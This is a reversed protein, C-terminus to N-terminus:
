IFFIKAAEMTEKNAIRDYRSIKSDAAALEKFRDDFIDTGQLSVAFASEGDGNRNRVGSSTLDPTTNADEPKLNAIDGLDGKPHRRRMEERLQEDTFQELVNRESEEPVAASQEETKESDLVSPVSYKRGNQMSQTNVGDGNQPKIPDSPEFKNIINLGNSEPNGRLNSDKEKDYVVKNNQDQLMKNIYGKKAGFVTLLAHQKGIYGGSYQEAVPKEVKLEISIYYHRGKYDVQELVANIRGNPLLIIYKPDEIIKPLKEMVSKGLGHNHDSKTEVGKNFLSVVANDYSMVIPLNPIDVKTLRTYVAPTDSRVFLHSHEKDFTGDLIQKIQENFPIGVAYKIEGSESAVAGQLVKVFRQEIERLEKEMATGEYRTFLSKVWDWIRQFLNRNKQALEGLAATDRFLVEGVFDALIEQQAEYGADVGNQGLPHGAQARDAIVKQAYQAVDSYGKGQLWTRFSDCQEFVFNMFHQHEGTQELHHTLEHKIVTMPTATNPNVYIVGNQYAGPTDLTEDFVVKTGANKEFASILSSREDESMDMFTRDLASARVGIIGVNGDAPATPDTSMREMQPISNISENNHPPYSMGNSYETSTSVPATKAATPADGFNSNISPLHDGNSPTNPSHHSELGMVSDSAIRIVEPALGSYYDEWLRASQEYDAQHEARQEDTMRSEEINRWKDYIADTQKKVAWAEQTTIQIEANLGNALPLTLHIGRYGSKNLPTELFVEGTLGPFKQKLASILTPVDELSNVVIAARAHDKLTYFDYDGKRLKRMVKNVISEISKHGPDIIQVNTNTVAESIGSVLTKQASDLEENGYPMKNRLEDASLGRLEQSATSVRSTKGRGKAVQQAYASADYIVEGDLTVGNVFYGGDVNQQASITLTHSNGNLSVFAGIVALKGGEKVEVVSSNKRLVDPVALFAVAQDANKTKGIADRRQASMM